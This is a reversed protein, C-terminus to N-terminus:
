VDGLISIGCCRKALGELTEGGENQDRRLKRM